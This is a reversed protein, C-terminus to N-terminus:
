REEGSLLRAMARAASFKAKEYELGVRLRDREAEAEEVAVRAERTRSRLQAKRTEENKGDLLGELLLRDEALHLHARAHEVMRSASLLAGEAERIREPLRALDFLLEDRTM